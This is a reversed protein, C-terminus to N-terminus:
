TYLRWCLLSLGELMSAPLFHAALGTGDMITLRPYHNMRNWMNIISRTPELSRIKHCEPPVFCFRRLVAPLLTHLVNLRCPISPWSLMFMFNVPGLAKGIIRQENSPIIWPIPISPPGHRERKLLRGVQLLLTLVSKPLTHAGLVSAPHQGAAPRLSSSPQSDLRMKDFSSTNKPDQKLRERQSQAHTRRGDRAKEPIMPPNTAVFVCWKGIVGFVCPRSTM